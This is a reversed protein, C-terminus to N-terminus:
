EEWCRRAQRGDHCGEQTEGICRLTSEGIKAKKAKRQEAEKDRKAQFVADKAIKRDRKKIYERENEDQWEKGWTSIVAVSLDRNFQQIPNLFATNDDPLLITTSQETYPILGAPVVGPIVGTVTPVASTSATPESM